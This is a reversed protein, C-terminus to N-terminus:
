RMPEYLIVIVAVQPKEPEPPDEDEAPAKGKAKPRAPPKAKGRTDKKGILTLRVVQNPKLSDFDAQYGPLKPDGGKLEKLEKATRKRPKGKEDFEVPPQMVRVKLDDAVLLEVEKPVIQLQLRGGVLVVSTQPVQITIVKQTGEVRSLRAVIEGLHAQKEKADKKEQVDGKKVDQARAPALLCILLLLGVAHSHRPM